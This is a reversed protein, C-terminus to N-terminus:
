GTDTLRRLAEQYREATGEIVSEPLPPPPPQKNWTVTDLYDRLFQKDFSPQSGGPRYEDAPWYRSSDPTLAEDILILEDGLLGFEFKTDALILGRRRAHDEAFRYLHLSAAELRDALQPYFRAVCLAFRPSGSTASM